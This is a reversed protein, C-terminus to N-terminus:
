TKKARLMENNPGSRWGIDARRQFVKLEPMRAIWATMEENIYVITIVLIWRRRHDNLREAFVEVLGAM